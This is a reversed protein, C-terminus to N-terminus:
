PTVENTLDPIAMAIVQARALRDIESEDLGAERLVEQTHEGYRPAHRQAAPQTRSWNGPFRMRTLKGESPHDESEFFGTAQLHEDSFITDLDHVVTAPIDVETLSAMWEATTRTALIAELGAYIEDINVARAAFSSIAPNRDFEAERGIVRYFSRWHKDTYILASIYGDRTRYPRRSPSLQRAYGGGDLPPDYSLGGLHDSLVFNVMTEFMPIDIRQGEGSSSREYVAALIQGVASIGTIRDCLANPVYRPPGGTSRSFLSALTSAGQMLDDYAPRAAYPGDQGYGFVGAYIIRPNIERVVEYSLGLREMAQPRVNYVIIDVSALLRLILALGQPAKLDIAISRKSRNANLYIPGMDPHRAPGIERVMDGDPSEVKIVDAGLDGLMQTCCPGMLVSTLDIVKLGNLPGRTRASQDPKGDGSSM